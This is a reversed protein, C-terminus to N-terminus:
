FSARNSQRHEALLYTPDSVQEEHVRVRMQLLRAHTACAVAQVAMLRMCPCTVSLSVSLSMMVSLMYVSGALLHQQTHYLCQQLRTQLKWAMGQDFSIIHM